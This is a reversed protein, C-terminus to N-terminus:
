FSAVMGLYYTRGEGSILGPGPYGSARRTFYVENELNNIGGRIGFNDLINYSFSIDSITYGHIKGLQANNTPYETNTADTYISAIKSVQYTLSFISKYFYTGGYRSIRDPANEVRNGIRDWDPLGVRTPVTWRIYTANIQAYSIFFSINGFPSKESFFNVPDFELFAEVGRHLSDGVNTRLNAPTQGLTRLAIADYDVRTAGSITDVRNNYRLQFLGVDFNLYNKIKGRYGTDANYGSQNKLNPDIDNLTTGITYLDSFLVPRFAQSYNAYINTNESVKYQLGVGGLVVRNELSKPNVQRYNPNAGPNANINSYGSAESRMIELRVGPTISLAPTIQFLHELYVAHNTNVFQLNGNRVVFDGIRNTEATDFNVGVTGNTNRSRNTNGRFYRVGMTTTNKIGFLEYSTIFRAESGITKYLDEDLQRPSFSLTRSNIADVRDISSNNGISPREGILGFTKLSIKTNENLAYDLTIAPINWVIGLWNRSRNSQRPSVTMGPKTLVPNYEAQGDLLGGAQKSQFENRTFEIGLKLNETFNYSLHAHGTRTLYNSNQRWGEASRHHFFSYYSIKGSTGSVGNYSNLLGYTGVTNRTELAIKKDKNPKKLVYNLLGGFQPGYQLSGAGRVIEIKEVAETPPTYYAEPYGMPDASIDYGNQRTNFEWSRNPNLGRVSISTQVGTGDNEQVMLGPIKAYLQRNMNTALNANTKDPRIVENKKGAYINTGQIDSLREMDKEKEGKVMIGTDKSEPWVKEPQSMEPAIQESDKTEMKTQDSPNSDNKIEEPNSEATKSEKWNIPSTDWRRVSNKQLKIRTGNEQTVELTDGVSEAKVNEYKKGTKLLISDAQIGPASFLIFASCFFFNIKSYFFPNNGTYINKINIRMGM